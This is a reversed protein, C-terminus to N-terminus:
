VLKLGTLPEMRSRKSASYWKCSVIQCNEPRCVLEWTENRDLAEIEERMAKEWNPSGKAEEYSIPDEVNMEGTFFCSVVSCHNIDVEYHKLYDPQRIERRPRGSVQQVDSSEASGYADAIQESAASAPSGNEAEERSSVQEDVDPFLPELCDQDGDLAAFERVAYLSSVEDFVVDRSTTYKMTKPDMCRWGKRYCDYGVFICKKAKPDLKTRNSKPVHVYCISGFVRFYSVDPVDGYLIEFPSKQTGPWPPLRNTVHCACKVAEAWLERPLNKEHLWSLCVSTLHALKREAVGNQQPTDPCTMQRQIGNDECYKFFADSM